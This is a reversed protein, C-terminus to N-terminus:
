PIRWANRLTSRRTVGLREVGGKGKSCVVHGDVLNEVSGLVNRLPEGVDGVREILVGAGCGIHPVTAGQMMQLTGGVVGRGGQAPRASKWRTKITLGLRM